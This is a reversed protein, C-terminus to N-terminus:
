GRVAKLVPKVEPLSPLSEQVLFTQLEKAVSQIKSGEAEGLVFTALPQSGEFDLHGNRTIINKM